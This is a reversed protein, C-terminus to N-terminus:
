LRNTISLVHRIAKTTDSNWNYAYADSNIIMDNIKKHPPIHFCFEEITNRRAKPYKKLTINIIKNLELNEM